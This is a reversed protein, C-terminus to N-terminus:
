YIWKKEEKKLFYQAVKNYNEIHNRDFFLYELIKKEEKEQNEM